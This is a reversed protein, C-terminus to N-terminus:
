IKSHKAPTPFIHAFELEIIKEKGHVMGYPIFILTIVLCLIGGIISHRKNIM